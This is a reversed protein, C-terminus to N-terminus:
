YRNTYMMLRSTQWLSVADRSFWDAHIQVLPSVFSGASGTILAQTRFYIFDINYWRHEACRSANILCVAASSDIDKANEYAYVPNRECVLECQETFSIFM